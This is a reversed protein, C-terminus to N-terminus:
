GNRAQHDAMINPLQRNNQKIARGAVQGSVETVFPVLNGNEVRVSATVHINGGGSMEQGPKTITVRENPSAKFAVLQSDIGGSGGVQFSGGNAFGPLNYGLRLPGGANMFNTIGGGLGAFLMNFAQDIFLDALKNLLGSIAEMASTTGRLLGKFMDAFGSSLTSTVQKGIDAVDQMGEEAMGKLNDNAARAAGSAGALEEKVGAINARAREGVASAWNGLYDQQAGAFASTASSAVGAAAGSFPNGIDAYSMLDGRLGLPKAGIALLQTDVWGMFRNVQVQIERIMYIVGNVAAEAGQYVLDGLAAPLQSWTAKVAEFAGVFGGIIGNVTNAIAPAIMGWLNSFWSGVANIAPQVIGYVGEAFLQWAAVAVDSFGVTAGASKNIEGTMAAIGASVVGVVAAVPWLKTVLGTAMSGMDRLVQGFGGQGSYVAQVQSGQQLLATFPNAGGQIQVALDQLQFGLQAQRQMVRATSAGLDSAARGMSSASKGFQQMSAEARKMGTQFEASDLGLDVRLAGVVAM